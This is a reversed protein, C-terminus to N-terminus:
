RRRGTREYYEPTGVMFPRLKADQKAKQEPTLRGVHDALASPAEGKLVKALHIDDHFGFARAAEPSYISM